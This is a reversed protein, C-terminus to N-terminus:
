KKYNKVFVYLTTSIGLLLSVIRLVDGVDQLSIAISGGTFLFTSTVIKIQALTHHPM